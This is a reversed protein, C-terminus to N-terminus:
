IIKKHTNEAHSVVLNLKKYSRASSAVTLTFSGKVFLTDSFSTLSIANTEETTRLCWGAM